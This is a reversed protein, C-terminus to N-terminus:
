NKLKSTDVIYTKSKLCDSLRKVYKFDPKAM